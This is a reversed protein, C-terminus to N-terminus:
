EAAINDFEILKQEGWDLFEQLFDFQVVPNIVKVLGIFNGQFKINLLPTHTILQLSRVLFIMYYSSSDFQVFLGLVM